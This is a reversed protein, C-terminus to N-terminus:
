RVVAITVPVHHVAYRTVSGLRLGRFGGRGRAGLVMMRAGGAAEAIVKYPHGAVVNVRVPVAPFKAEWGALQDGVAVREAVAIEERDVFRSGIWPEPPPMWARVVHLAVGDAAAQEFAFGATRDAHDSDDLGLVIPATAECRKPGRVVVVTCAAHAVLAGSVSGILFGPLAGHSRGGLVLIGAGASRDRLIAAAPGREIVARVTTGPLQERARAAAAGLMSDVAREAALDPWVPTGPVMDAAPLYNPWMWAYALEVDAHTRAAEALAWSLAREAGPSGDYGIVIRQETM